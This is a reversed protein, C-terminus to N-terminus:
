QFIAKARAVLTPSLAFMRDVISQMEVGRVPDVDLDAAAADKIYDPDKSMADFADRLQTVKAEPVGPPAILPWALITDTLLAELVARTDADPALDLAMPVNPLDPSPKFAAQVLVKLKGDRWWQGARSKLSGWSWGCEGDIEGREMALSMEAGGPYGSINRLKTGLLANYMIPHTYSRGGPGSSGVIAGDHRLDEFSNARATHWFGCVATEQSRGGIWNFKRPDFRATADGFLSLLVASANTVGLTMGDRPALNYVHNTASLGGSGPMNQVLVGPEGPLFKPLHRSWLRATLDYLGGTTSGVVFTLQGAKQAWAQDAPAGVVLALAVIWRGARL